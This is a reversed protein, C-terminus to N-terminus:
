ELNSIQKITKDFDALRNSYEKEYGQLSLVINRQNEGLFSDVNKDNFSNDSALIIEKRKSQLENYRTALGRLSSDEKILNSPVFNNAENEDNIHQQMFNIFYLKLDADAKLNLTHYTNFSRREIYNYHQFIAIEDKRWEDKEIQPDLNRMDTKLQVVLNEMESILGEIREDDLAPRRPNFSWPRDWIKLSDDIQTRKQDFDRLLERKKEERENQSINIQKQSSFNITDTKNHANNTKILIVGNKAKGGYINTASSDKLVTISEISNPNLKNMASSDAEKGDIIFIPQNIKAGSNIKIRFDSNHLLTDIGAQSQDEKDLRNKTKIVIVGNKGKKGYLRIAASDKFISMSDINAPNLKRLGSTDVEKGDIIYLAKDTWNKKPISDIATKTKKINTIVSPMLINNSTTQIENPLDASKIDPVHSIQQHNNKLSNNYRDRFALLLVAILPLVFLFKVLHAKASKLKNMMIIRKKLSSINFSNAIRYQPQAIVKLLHHQYDKKDFGKKVVNDDAIFELNQRISYRMLWAFPNYWNVICIFESWLIDVTHKQKVHVYEHLIIEEFEKETHLQPNIFIANGFSFPIISKDVEYISVDDNEIAASNKKIKQISFFQIIFRMLMIFTGSAIIILLLNWYDFPQHVNSSINASNSVYNEVVPMYHLVPINDLNKNETIFSIKIFPIFFSLLSYGLLFWRNWNYFTLRRLVFQYFLYLVSLSISFKLLYFIITPM